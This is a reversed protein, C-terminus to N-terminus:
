LPVPRSAERERMSLLRDIRAASRFIVDPQKHYGQETYFRDWCAVDVAQRLQTATFGDRLRARIRKMHEEIVAVSRPFTRSKTQWYEYISLEEPEKM